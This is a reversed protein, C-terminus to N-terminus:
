KFVNEWYGEENSNEIVSSPAHETATMAPIVFKVFCLIILVIVIYIPLADKWDFQSEDTNNDNNGPDGGM